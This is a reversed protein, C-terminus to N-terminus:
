TARALACVCECWRVFSNLLTQCILSEKWKPDIEIPIKLFSFWKAFSFDHMWSVDFDHSGRRKMNREKEKTFCNADILPWKRPAFFAIFSYRLRVCTRKAKHEKYPRRRRRQCDFNFQNFIIFSRKVRERAHVCRCRSPSHLVFLRRLLECKSQVRTACERVEREYLLPNLSKWQVITSYRRRCM